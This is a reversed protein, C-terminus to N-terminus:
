RADKKSIGKSIWECEAKGKLFYDFWDLIRCTLDVQAQEKQQSHGEGKYFLAIVEKQNRCLANYFAMSHDATVNQDELGTWLLVPANVKEAHWLPNNKFYLGKDASFPKGLKYMNAEIRVYDPIDFNYNFSNSDWVIDSHGSGSVFAAFRTSRTAIYDTEYGGFSHGILGIRGRDILPNHALADLSRTVCDLADLGPGAKGQNVIDPLYVFYGQELFLRINFGLSEYYSPYPYRNALQNQKQYIHVVMPYKRSPDYGMPYYLIGKLPIGDSNTYSIIEQRLSLIAKDQKNSQYVVSEKKGMEKYVLRPPLNYDEELWSFCTFSQNYNLSQIRKTTPQIIVETKGNYWLCYATQNEGPDYLEILLPDSLNVQQSAFTGKSTKIDNRQGNIIRTQYGDFAAATTLVATNIEYQWVAGEGEFLVTTNEKSFWPTGLGKRDILKKSGSPIHYLYWGSSAPSLAYVGDGSLYLEPAITDLLAYRDEVLDYVSLQLPPYETRYDQLGFPDFSLFYRDNCSNIGVPLHDTGVKRIFHKRPEWVYTLVTLPPHFKEELRNDNGNWIDVVADDQKEKQILIKLFYVNGEQIVETFARQFATTLVENLPFVNKTKIDLYVIDESTNGPNQQHIIMGAANPDIYLFSIKGATHYVTETAQERIRVVDFGNKDNEAVAYVQENGTVYFFSVQSTENVLEGNINRLELRNQEEANYHLVFRGKNKLVQAKKVGPYCTATQKDPKILEAQNPSTILLQGTNTFAISKVKTRYDVPEGPRSSDFILLTDRNLDYSKWATLWRGDESMKLGTLQYYTNAMYQLEDPHTQATLERGAALLLCLFFLSYLSRM